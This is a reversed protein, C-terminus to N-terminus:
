PKPKDAIKQRYLPLHRYYVELTLTAMATCYLRGGVENHEDQGGATYWSGAAHGHRVQQSTLDVKVQPEPGLAQLIINKRESVEAEEETLEGAEILKQMLSQDKTIQRAKGARVLYGRSDGVHAFHATPVADPTILLTVLTTGMQALRPELRARGLRGRGALRLGLRETRRSHRAIDHHGTRRRRRM